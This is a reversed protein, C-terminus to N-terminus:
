PFVCSMSLGIGGVDKLTKVAPEELQKVQEKVLSEFTKYNIFGPLERGRYKEEYIAVEKELRKSVADCLCIHRESTFGALPWKHVVPDFFSLDVSVSKERATWTPLGSGLSEDSLPFSTSPKEM